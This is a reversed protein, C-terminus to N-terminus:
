AVLEERGAKKLDNYVRLVKDAYRSKTGLSGNYRLLANRLNGKSDDLCNVLIKSGTHINKRADFLGDPGGIEKVKKPHYRAMVQMLGRAGVPSVARERFTSEVAIVALILEPQLGHTQSNHMAEKVINVAKSEAVKFREQIYDALKHVRETNHKAVVDALAVTEIQAHVEQVETYLSGTNSDAPMVAFPLLSAGMFVSAVKLKAFNTGKLPIAIQM